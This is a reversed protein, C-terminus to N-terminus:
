PATRETEAIEHLWTLIAMIAPIKIDRAKDDCARDFWQSKHCITYNNHKYAPCSSCDNGEDHYKVCLGCGPNISFHSLGLAHHLNCEWSHITQEIAQLKTM